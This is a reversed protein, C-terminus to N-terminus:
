CEPGVACKALATAFHRAAVSIAVAAGQRSTAHDTTNGSSAERLAAFAADRCVGVLEAGSAGLLRPHAALSSLDVDTALNMADTAFLLIELKNKFDPLPVEIHTDIRGPRLVQM